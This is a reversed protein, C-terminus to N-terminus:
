MHRFRHMFAESVKLPEPRQKLRVALHRPGERRVLEIAQVNVITSRHIQWFQLPDLQELLEKMTLNILSESDPTVVRTYKTDSQFYCVEDVTVLCVNSGRSATIWQLHRGPPPLRSALQALVHDLALPTLLLKEEVRKCAIRLREPEVPKLVYDVAGAEFAAVAYHSYATVFVIHCRGSAHRALEIGSMEPMEVDLFLVDPRHQDLLQLGEQGDGASAIVRLTPWAQQLSKQLHESLMPEDEVILATPSV